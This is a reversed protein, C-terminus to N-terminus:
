LGANVGPLTDWGMSAGLAVPAKGGRRVCFSMGFSAIRGGDGALVEVRGGGGGDAPGLGATACHGGHADNGLMLVGGTARLTRRRLLISRGVSLVGVVLAPILIAFALVLLGLFLRISARPYLAM